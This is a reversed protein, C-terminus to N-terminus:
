RGTSGSQSLSILPARDYGSGPNTIAYGTVSGNSLIASATAQIGGPMDPPSLTITVSTLGSGTTVSPVIASVSNSLMVFAGDLNSYTPNGGIIGSNSGYNSASTLLGAGSTFTIGTLYSSLNLTGNNLEIQNAVTSGPAVGLNGDRSIKLTDGGSILTAGTFTGTGSLDLAGGGTVTLTGSTSAGPMNMLPVQSVSANGNTNIVGGNAGIQVVMETTGSCLGTEGFIGNGPGNGAWGSSVLITGGNINVTYNEGGNVSGQGNYLLYTKLVGGNLNLFNTVNAISGGDVPVLSNITGSNLTVVGQGDSGVSLAASLQSFYGGNITLFGFKNTGAFKGVYTVGNESVSGTVVIGGDGGIGIDLENGNGGLTDTGALVVTGDEVGLGIGGATSNTGLINGSFTSTLGVIGAGGGNFNGMTLYAVVAGTNVINGSGYLQGIHVGNNAGGAGIQGDLDFTAGSNITLPYLGANTGLTSNQIQLTGSNIITPGYYNEAAALILKGSGWKTLGGTNNANLSTAFTVTQGNTNISIPGNSNVIRGSYDTANTSSFVLTGGNFTINGGTTAGTLAGTNSLLLNGGDLYTAGTYANSASLTLTGAGSKTLANAGNALIPTSITLFDSPSNTRIVMEANNAAQIGTGGSITSNTTGSALLGNVTVTQGANLTLSSSGNMEITSFAASNQGTVTGTTILQYTSGSLGSSLGANTDTGPDSGYQIARVNTGTYWAYNAGEYFEGYNLLGTNGASGTIVFGSTGSNGVGGLDNGNVFNGTAGAARAALSSFTVEQAYNTGTETISVTGDGSNLTLAGFSGSYAAAAGTNDLNFTGGNLTLPSTSKLSGTNTDLTLTSLTVTTTGIYSNSGTLTLTSGGNVLLGSSGAITSAITANTNVTVGAGLNITGSTLTYNGSGAPDFIITGANLLGSVTITGAAGFGTGIIDTDSTTNGSAGYTFATNNFWNTGGTAAWTGGGDSFQLTGSTEWIYTTAHLTSCFSGALLLALFTFGKSCARRILSRLFRPYSHAFAQPSGANNM